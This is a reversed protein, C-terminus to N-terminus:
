TLLQNLISKNKYKLYMLYTIENKFLIVTPDDGERYTPNGKPQFMYSMNVPNCVTQYDKESRNCGVFFIFSFTWFICFLISKKM